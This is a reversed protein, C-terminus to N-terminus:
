NNTCGIGAIQGYPTKVVCVHARNPNPSSDRSRPTNKTAASGKCTLWTFSDTLTLPAGLALDALTRALLPAMAPTGLGLWECITFSDDPSLNGSLVKYLVSEICASMGEPEPLPCLKALEAARSLWDSDATYICFRITEHLIIRPVDKVPIKTYNKHYHM